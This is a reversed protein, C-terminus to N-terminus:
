AIRGGRAAGGGSPPVRRSAERCGRRRAAGGYGPSSRPTERAARFADSTARLRRHRRRGPAAYADGGRDCAFSQAARADRAAHTAGDLIGVAGPNRRSGGHQLRRQEANARPRARRSELGIQDPVPASHDLMTEDRQRIEHEPRSTTGSSSCSAAVGCRSASVSSAKIRSGAAATRRTQRAARRVRAPRRARVSRAIRRRAQSASPARSECRDCTPDARGGRCERCAGVRAQALLARAQEEVAAVRQASTLAEVQAVLRHHRLEIRGAVVRLRDAIALEVVEEPEQPRARGVCAGGARRYSDAPRLPGDTATRANAATRRGAIRGVPRIWTSPRSIMCYGCPLGHSRTKPHRKRSGHSALRVTRAGSEVSPSM